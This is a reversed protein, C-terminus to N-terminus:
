EDEQIKLSFNDVFNYFKMILNHQYFRILYILVNKLINLIAEKNPQYALDTKNIARDDEYDALLKAVIGDIMEETKM